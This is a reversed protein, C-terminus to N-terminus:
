IVDRKHLGIIDRLEETTIMYGKFRHLMRHCNACICILDAEPNIIVEEDLSALPKVHHVEIYGRGLEGYKEEFDFGCIMCKTGHIRIAEKRNRPDREYRTTYYGIKRGESYGESEVQISENEYNIEDSNNGRLYGILDCNWRYGRDFDVTNHVPVTSRVDSLTSKYLYKTFGNGTPDVERTFSHNDQLNTVDKTESIRGDKSTAFADELPRPLGHINGVRVLMRGQNGWAGADKNHEVYIRVLEEDKCLFGLTEYYEHEDNFKLVNGWDLLM